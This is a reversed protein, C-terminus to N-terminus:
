LIGGLTLAPLFGWAAINTDSRSERDLTLAADIRAFVRPTLFVLLGLGVDGSPQVDGGYDHIGVHAFAQPELHIVSNVGGVLIKGYGLSYRAGLLGLWTPPRSDPLAGLTAAVQEAAGNLSSWYHSLQLEVALSELFYYDGGLRLGPSIYFDGRALYEAGGFLLLRHAKEAFRAQVRAVPQPRPAPERIGPAPAAPAGSAPSTAAPTGAVITLVACAAALSTM